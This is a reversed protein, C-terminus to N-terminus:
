HSPRSAIKGCGTRGALPDLGGGPGGSLAFIRVPRANWFNM